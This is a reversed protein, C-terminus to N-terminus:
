RIARALLADSFGIAYVTSSRLGTDNKSLKKIRKSQDDRLGLAEVFDEFRQDLASRAQIAGGNDL